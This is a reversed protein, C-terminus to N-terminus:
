LDGYKSRHAAVSHKNKNLKFGDKALKKSVNSDSGDVACIEYSGIIKDKNYMNDILKFVDSCVNKYFSEPLSASRGSLSQRSIKNKRKLVNESLDNFIGTVSDMSIGKQTHLLNFLLGDIENTKRNRTVHNSGHKNVIQKIKKALDLLKLGM